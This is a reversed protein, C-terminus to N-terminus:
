TTQARDIRLILRLCDLYDLIVQSMLWSDVWVILHYSSSHKHQMLDILSMLTVYHQFSSDSPHHGEHDITQFSCIALVLWLRVTFDEMALCKAM